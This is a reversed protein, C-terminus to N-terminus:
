PTDDGLHNCVDQLEIQGSQQSQHYPAVITQLTLKQKGEIRRLMGCSKGVWRWINSLIKRSIIAYIEPCFNQM